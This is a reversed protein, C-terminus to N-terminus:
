VEAGADLTFRKNVILTLIWESKKESEETVADVYIEVDDNESVTDIVFKLIKVYLYKDRESKVGM